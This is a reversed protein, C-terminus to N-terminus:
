RLRVVVLEALAIEGAAKLAEGLIRLQGAREDCALDELPGALQLTASTTTRPEPVLLPTGISPLRYGGSYRAFGLFWRVRAEIMTLPGSPLRRTSQEGSSRICITRSPSNSM